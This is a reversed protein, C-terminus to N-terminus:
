LGAVPTCAGGGPLQVEGHGASSLKCQWGVAPAGAHSAWVVVEESPDGRLQFTVTGSGSSDFEMSEFRQASVPVFKSVAEGLLAWRNPLMPALVYYQAGGNDYYTQPEFHLPTDAAVGVLPQSPLNTTDTNRKKGGL